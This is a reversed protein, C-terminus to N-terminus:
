SKATRKFDRFASLLAARDPRLELEAAAVGALRATARLQEVYETCPPCLELHEEPAAGVAYLAADRLEVVTAARLLRAAEDDSPVHRETVCRVLLDLM